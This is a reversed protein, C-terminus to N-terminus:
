SCNKFDKIISFFTLFLAGRPCGQHDLPESDAKCHLLYRNLGQDPLIWCAAPCSVGYAVVVLGVYKCYSFGVHGLAQAGCSFGGGPSAQASCSLLLGWKSCSSFLGRVALGLAALFLIFKFFFLAEHGTFIVLECKLVMILTKNSGLWACTSQRQSNKNLCYSLLITILNMHSFINGKWKCSFNAAGQELNCSVQICVM